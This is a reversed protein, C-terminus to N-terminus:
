PEPEIVLRSTLEVTVITGAPLDVEEGKSAVVAGTGGVIIGVIAGKKGGLIGGLVGGLVAGIGAKGATDSGGADQDLSVVRSRLDLRQRGLYLTDFELEIHGGKSARQAQEVDKVIGRLRAGAPVAVRGEARVPRHVSADFRDERRATRSSLAEDLRVLVRTGEPLRLERGRAERELSREIDDRLDAISRRVDSVEDFSVGTGPGGTRQHRRMKVKLYITDERIEDARRRFEDSDPAGSPLAELEGDLNQADELLRQLERPRADDDRGQAGTVAAPLLSGAVFIFALTRRMADEKGAAM